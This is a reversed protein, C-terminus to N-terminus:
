RRSEMVRCANCTPAEFSGWAATSTIHWVGCRTWWSAIGAADSGPTQEVAHLAGAEDRQMLREPQEACGSRPMLTAPRAAIEELAAPLEGAVIRCFVCQDM